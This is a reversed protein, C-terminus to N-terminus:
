PVIAYMCESKFIYIAIKRHVGVSEVCDVSTLALKSLSGCRDVSALGSM